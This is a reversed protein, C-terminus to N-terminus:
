CSGGKLIFVLCCAPCGEPRHAAKAGEVWFVTTHTYPDEHKGVVWGGHRMLEKDLRAPFEPEGQAEWTAKIFANTGKPPGQLEPVEYSHEGSGPRAAITLPGLGLWKLFDRRQM